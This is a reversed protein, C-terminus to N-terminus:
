DFLGMWIETSDTINKIFVNGGGSVSDLGHNPLVNAQWVEHTKGHREKSKVSNIIKFFVDRLNGGWMSSCKENKPKDLIEEHNSESQVSGALISYTNLRVNSLVIDMAGENCFNIKIWVTVTNNSKEMTYNSYKDKCGVLLRHSYSKYGHM